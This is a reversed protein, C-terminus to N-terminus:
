EVDNYTWIRNAFFNWFLVIGVALVLAMNSGLREAQPTLSPLITSILRAFPRHTFTLIPIRIVIGTLNILFFQFFQRVLPKTRSDPYTWYRNWIFNSIVALIFSFTGALTPGFTEPDQLGINLLPAHLMGGRSVAANMPNLLVNYTGFDVVAGILGVVLFKSFRTFEKQNQAILDKIKQLM